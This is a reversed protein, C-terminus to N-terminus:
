SWWDGRCILGGLLAFLISVLGGLLGSFAWPLPRLQSRGSRNDIPRNWNTAMKLALWAMMAIPAGQVNLGVLVTFFLRELFGTLEPPVSKLRGPKQRRLKLKTYRLWDLFSKAVWHGLGLSFVLGAVWSILVHGGTSNLLWTLLADM